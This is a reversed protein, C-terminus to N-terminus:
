FLEHFCMMQITGQQRKNEVFRDFHPCAFGGFPYNGLDARDEELLLDSLPNM